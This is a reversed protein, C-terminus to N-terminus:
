LWAFRWEFLDLPENLDACVEIGPLALRVLGYTGRSPAGGCGLDIGVPRVAELDVLVQPNLIEM